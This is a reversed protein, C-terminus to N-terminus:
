DKEDDKKLQKQVDKAFEDSLDKKLEKYVNEKLEDRFEDYVSEKIEEKFENYVDERIENKLDHYTREKLEDKIEGSVEEKLEEYMDDRIEGKIALVRTSRLQRRHFKHDRTLMILLSVAMQILMFAIPLGGSIAATQLASLGDDGGSILLVSATSAILIGWMLKIKMPPNPNGNSTMSGLVFTASDASTIFFIFILVLAVISTILFIPLQELLVFMALEENNQSADTIATVGQSVEYYM